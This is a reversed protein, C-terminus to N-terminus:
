YEIKDLVIGNIILLSSNEAFSSGFKELSTCHIFLNKASFFVHDYSNM